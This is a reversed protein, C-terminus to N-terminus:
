NKQVVCDGGAKKLQGCLQNADSFTEFPGIQARYYIGRAGFDSRRIFPERAGFISAYKAQLIRSTAQAATESRQSSLQVVYGGAPVAGPLPPPSQGQSPGAVSQTAPDLLAKALGRETAPAVDAQRPGPSISGTFPLVPALEARTERPPVVSESIASGRDNARDDSRRDSASEGGGSEPASRTKLNPETMLPAANDGRGFWQGYGFAGASGALVLGVIAGATRLGRRQRGLGHLSVHDDPQPENYSGDAAPGAGDRERAAATAITGGPSARASGSPPEQARPAQELGSDQGRRDPRVIAGSAEYREILQALEALPDHPADDPSDVSKRNTRLQSVRQYGTMNRPGMRSVGFRVRLDTGKLRDSPDMMDWHILAFQHQGAPAAGRRTGSHMGGARSM